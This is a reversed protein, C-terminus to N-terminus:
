QWTAERYFGEVKIANFMRRAQKRASSDIAEVNAMKAISGEESLLAAVALDLPTGDEIHFYGCDRLRELLYYVCLGVKSLAANARKFPELVDDHVRNIRRMISLYKKPELGTAIDAGAEALWKMVQQAEPDAAEAGADVVTYLLQVPLLAEAIQRDSRYTM